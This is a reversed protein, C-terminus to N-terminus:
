QLYGPNWPDLVHDVTYSAADADSLQRPSRGTDTPNAGAGTSQYEWFRTFALTNLNMTTWGDAAIHAGMEVGIFAAAAYPGWPRGLRVHNERVRSTTPDATLSGSIFVFGYNADQPTSPATVATGEAVNNITCRDFVATAAGFIYDTNGQIYCNRFYQTGTNAYVTDQYSVFRCKRFQQRKGQALLAVAQGSGEPASNEFTIHAASFDNGTAIVTGDTLINTGRSNTIVTTAANEGALCVFPKDVTVQERYTGPKVSVQVLKSNTTAISNIAAQITTFQGSGDVSVTVTKSAGPCATFPPTTDADDTAGASGGTGSKGAGSGAMVTGGTGAGGGARGGSGASMARGASTTGAQGKGATSSGLGGVGPAAPHDNPAIATVTTGTDPRAGTGASFDQSRNDGSSCAALASILILCLGVYILRKGTRRVCFQSVIVINPYLQCNVRM